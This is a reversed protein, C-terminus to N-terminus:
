IDAPFVILLKGNKIVNHSPV